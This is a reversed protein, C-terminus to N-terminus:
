VKVWYYKLSSIFLASGIGIYLSALYLRPVIDTNRLFIGMSMMIAILIYSQWRQFAFLCSDDSMNMIRKINKAAIKRFGFYAIVSGLVLGACISLALSWGQYLQLWGLAFSNLLLGVGSWLVGSLILLTKRNGAPKKFIQM